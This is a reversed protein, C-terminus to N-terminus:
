RAGRSMVETWTIHVHIPVAYSPIHNRGWIAMARDDIRVILGKSVLAKVVKSHYGLGWGHGVAISDLARRQARTLGKIADIVSESSELASM